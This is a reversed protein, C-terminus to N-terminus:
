TACLLWCAWCSCCCCHIIFSVRHTNSIKPLLLVFHPSIGSDIEIWACRNHPQIAIAVIQIWKIRMKILLKTNRNCNATNCCSKCHFYEFSYRDTYSKSTNLLEWTIFHISFKSGIIKVRVSLGIARSLVDLVHGFYFIISDVFPPFYLLAKSIITSRLLKREFFKILRYYRICKLVQHAELQM